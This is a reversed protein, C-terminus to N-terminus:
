PSDIQPPKKQWFLALDGIWMLERLWRSGDSSQKLEFLELWMSPSFSSNDWDNNNLSSKSPKRKQQSLSCRFIAFVPVFASKVCKFATGSIRNQCKNSLTHWGFYVHMQKCSTQGKGPTLFGGFYELCNSWVPRNSQLRIVCFVGETLSIFTM